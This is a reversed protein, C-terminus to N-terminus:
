PRYTLSSPFYKKEQIKEPRFATIINYSKNEELEVVVKTYRPRGGITYELSYYCYRNKFKYAKYICDPECIARKIRDKFNNIKLEKHYSHEEFRKKTFTYQKGDLDKFQLFPQGEPM